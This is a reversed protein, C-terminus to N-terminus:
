PAPNPTMDPMCMASNASSAGMGVDAEKDILLVTLHYRSLSRAVMCGVIGAGVVIVDFANM